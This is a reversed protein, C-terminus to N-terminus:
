DARRYRAPGARLAQSRAKKLSYRTRKWFYGLRKLKNRLTSASVTVATEATLRTGLARCNLPEADVWEKLQDRYTENLKSPVGSRPQDPLSALGKKLWKRRRERIAEPKM